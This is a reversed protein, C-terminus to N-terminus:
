SKFIHERHYQLYKIRKEDMPLKDIIKGTYINLRKQNMPSLWPSVVISKDECFTIFGKDFLKDYTPTLMYGNKPDIKEKDNSKSWSKIHSAILLREDNIQTFPCYPCM